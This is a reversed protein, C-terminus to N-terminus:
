KNPQFRCSCNGALIQDGYIVGPLIFRLGIFYSDVSVSIFFRDGLCPKVCRRLTVTAPFPPFGSKGHCQCLARPERGHIQKEPTIIGRCISSGPIQKILGAIVIAAIYLQPDTLFIATLYHNIVPIRSLLVPYPKCIGRDSM